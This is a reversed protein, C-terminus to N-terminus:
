RLLEEPTMEKVTIELQLQVQNEVALVLLIGVVLVLLVLIASEWRLRSHRQLTEYRFVVTPNSKEKAATREM